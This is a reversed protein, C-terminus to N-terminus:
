KKEVKRSYDYKYCLNFGLRTYMAKAPENDDEVQLYGFDAGRRVGWNTLVQMMMRGYGKKRESSATLVGFFGMLNGEAVGMGCALPSGEKFLGFLSKSPVITNLVEGHKQWKSLPTGTLDARLCLWANNEMRRVEVTKSLDEQLYIDRGLVLTPDFTEYGTKDLASILEDSVFPEPLRFIPPLGVQNYMRECHAIKEEYPLTSPYRPNISNARKTYGSAFRLLWGDYVIQRLAPWANLAAEELRELQSRQM